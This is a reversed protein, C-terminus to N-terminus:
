LRFSRLNMKKGVNESGNDDDRSLTGLLDCIVDFHPLFLSTASSGCALTDSINKGWKSTRKIQSRGTNSLLGMAVHFRNINQKTCHDSFFFSLYVYRGRVAQSYSIYTNFYEYCQFQWLYWGFYFIYHEFCCCLRFLVTTVLWYFCVLSVLSILVYKFMANSHFHIHNEWYFLWGLHSFVFPHLARDMSAILGVPSCAM